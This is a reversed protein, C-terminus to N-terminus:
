LIYTIVGVSWMDVELGYGKAPRIVEPAVHVFLREETFTCNRCKTCKIESFICASIRMRCSHDHLPHKGCYGPTGCVLNMRVENQYIEALGFDAAVFCYDELWFQM